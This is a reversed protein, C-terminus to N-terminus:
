AKENFGPEYNLSNYTKSILRFKPPEYSNVQKKLVLKKLKKKNNKQPKYKILNVNPQKTIQIHEPKNQKVKKM